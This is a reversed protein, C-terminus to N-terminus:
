VLTWINSTLWIKSFFNEKAWWIILYYLLFLSISNCNLIHSHMTPHWKNRHDFSFKHSWIVTFVSINKVIWFLQKRYCPWKSLPRHCFVTLLWYIRFSFDSSWLFCIILMHTRFMTPFCAFNSSRVMPPAIVM